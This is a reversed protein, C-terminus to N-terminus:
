LPFRGCRLRVWIETEAVHLINSFNCSCIYVLLRMQVLDHVGPTRLALGVGSLPGCRLCPDHGGTVVCAIRTPPGATYKCGSEDSGDGYGDVDGGGM